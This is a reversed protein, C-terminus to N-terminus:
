RKWFDSLVISVILYISSDLIGKNRKYLHVKFFFISKAPQGLTPWPARRWITLNSFSSLYTERSTTFSLSSRAQRLVLMKGLVKLKVKSECVLWDGSTKVVDRVAEQWFEQHGGKGWNYWRVTKYSIFRDEAM